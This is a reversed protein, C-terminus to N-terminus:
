VKRQVRHPSLCFTHQHSHVEGPWNARHVGYTQTLLRLAASFVLPLLLVCRSGDCQVSLWAESTQTRDTSHYSVPPLQGLTACLTLMPTRRAMSVLPVRVISVSMLRPQSTKPVRLYWLLWQTHPPPHFLPLHTAYSLTYKTPSSSPHLILVRSRHMSRSQSNAQQQRIAARPSWRPTQPPVMKSPHRPDSFRLFCVCRINGCTRGSDPPRAREGRGCWVPVVFLVVVVVLVCRVAGSDMRRCCHCSWRWLDVKCFAEVGAGESDTGGGDGLPGVSGDEELHGLKPSDRRRGYVVCNM